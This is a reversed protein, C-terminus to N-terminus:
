SVAWILIDVVATFAITQALFVCTEGVLQLPARWWRHRRAPHWVILNNM